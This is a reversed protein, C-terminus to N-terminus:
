LITPILALALTIISGLLVGVKLFRIDEENSIRPDGTLDNPAPAAIESWRWKLADIFGMGASEADDFTGPIVASGDARRSVRHTRYLPKESSPSVLKGNVYRDGPRVLRLAPQKVQTDTDVQLASTGDVRTAEILQPKSM